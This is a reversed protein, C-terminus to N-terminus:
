TDRSVHRDSGSQTHTWRVRNRYQYRRVFARDIRDKLRFAAKGHICIRARHLFGSKFGLNLAVLYRGTAQFPSLTTPDIEQGRDIAQATAEVNDALASQMRVAFVGVRDLPQPEFWASDGVAFVEPAAPSRLFKDVTVAGDSGLPLRFRELSRPPRIGSAVLVVDADLERPSVKLGYHPLVGHDKLFYDVWSTRRETLHALSRSASYLDVESRAGLQAVLFAANAAVEVGAPGGGVVAIRCTGNHLCQAEIASRARALQVIPKVHFLGRGPEPPTSVPTADSETAASEMAVPESGVNLSLVDYGLHEGTSLTVTRAEADHSAVAGRVFTGGGSEVLTAAPLVIDSLAYTGGLLGPGMGSYPHMATLSVLTLSHGGQIFRPTLRALEAHTHGAGVLVIRAM